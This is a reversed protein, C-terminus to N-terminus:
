RGIRGDPGSCTLLPSAVNDAKIPRLTTEVVKGAGPVAPRHQRADARPFGIFALYNM